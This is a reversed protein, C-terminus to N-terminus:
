RPQNISHSTNPEYKARLGDNIKIQEDYYAKLCAIVFNAETIKSNHFTLFIAYVAGGGVLMGVFFYLM